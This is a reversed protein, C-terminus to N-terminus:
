KAEDELRMAEARGTDAERARKASDALLVKAIGIMCLLAALGCIAMLWFDVARGSQEHQYLTLLKGFELRLPESDALVTREGERAQVVSQLNNLAGGVSAQLNGYLALLETLSARTDPDGTA